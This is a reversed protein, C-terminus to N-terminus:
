HEEGLGSQHGITARSNKSAAELRQGRVADARVPAGLAFGVHCGRLVLMM